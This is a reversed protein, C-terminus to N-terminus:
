DSGVVSQWVDVMWVGDQELARLVVGLLLLGRV